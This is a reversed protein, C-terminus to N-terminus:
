DKTPLYTAGFKTLALSLIRFKTLGFPRKRGNLTRKFLFEQASNSIKRVRLRQNEYRLIVFNETIQGVINSLQQNIYKIDFHSFICINTKKYKIPFYNPTSHSYLM